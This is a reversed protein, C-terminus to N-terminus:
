KKAVTRKAAAKKAPAKKVPAKKAPAAAKVPAAKPAPVGYFDWTQTRGTELVKAVQMPLRAEFREAIPDLKARLDKGNAVATKKAATLQTDFDKRSTEFQDEFDKRSTEFRENLKEVMDINSLKEVLDTNAQVIKEAAIANVGVYTYAADKFTNQM